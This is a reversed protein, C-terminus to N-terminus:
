NVLNGAADYVNIRYHSPAQGGLANADGSSAVHLASAAETEDIAIEGTTSNYDICLGGTLCDKTRQETWYKNISGESLNDTTWSNITGVSSELSTIRSGNSSILGTLTGDVSQFEAVIEALSNLATADTNSLISDIQSQLSADASVRASEEASIDSSLASEAATARAVEAALSDTLDSDGATRDAVEQSLLAQLSSKSTQETTSLATIQAQLDADASDRDSESAAIAAARANQEATIAAARATSEATIADANVQVAAVRAATEASIANANSTTALETADMEGELTSVRATLASADGGLNSILTQIDSDADEFAAVVEVLQNLTEPSGNTIATVAADVADINAQLTNDASTRALEEADIASQLVADAAVRANEEATIASQLGQDSLIRASQESDLLSQLVGEAATARAVEVDIASQLTADGASRLAAEAAIDSDLDDKMSQDAASRSAIESTIQSQLGSEVGTARTEEADIASQLVGEAALARTEEATIAAANATHSGANSSILTQLDSDANEFAAVVEVITDLSESSGNLIADVRGSVTDINSQLTTDATTRATAEDVVAQANVAEAATARAVEADIASQLDSDADARASAEAAEAALARTEEASIDSALGAEASTARSIENALNTTLVGEATTARSEENAIATSLSANLDSDANDVYSKNAALGASTPTDVIVQSGGFHVLGNQWDITSGPQETKLTGEVEIMTSAIRGQIYDTFEYDTGNWKLFENSDAASVNLHQDIQANTASSFGGGTITASGFNVTSGEFSVTGTQVTLSESEITDIFARNAYVDNVGKINNQGMEIGVSMAINSDSDVDIGATRANTAAIASANSAVMTTVDSDADQFASVLETLSDLASPDTNEKIFDIQTQLDSDAAVRASTEAAEAATARAVEAALDATLVADAAARLASEDSDANARATAETAIATANQSITSANATILNQIDSDAGEFASVVEVVTDLSEVSGNLIADIRANTADINSQLSSDETTRTTAETAVSADVYSKTAADQAATPDAMGTIKNGSMDVEATMEINSSGSSTSVGAVQSQLNSIATANASVDSTLVAEAGQARLSEDAIDQALSAEVTTARTTEASIATANVGEAATARSTEAAIDSALGTEASTARAVEAALDSTLVGEASLARSLETSLGASLDSDANRRATAEDTIAQQRAAVEANIANTNATVSASNSTILSQIDSDANEFAAVVEVITDLSEGAGQLIADVRDSVAQTTADVYGKTTVDGSDVPTPYNIIRNGMLDLNSLVQLNDVDANFGITGTGDGFYLGGNFTALGDVTISGDTFNAGLHNALQTEAATARATEVAIDAALGAEVTEARSQETVVAAANAAEATQARLEEADINAQLTNEALTARTVEAAVSVELGSKDAVQTASLVDVQSQLNADGAIRASSETNINSQLVAEANTARTYEASEASVARTVEADLESHVENIASVVTTATTALSSVAGVDSDLNSIDTDNSDIQSQLDSDGAARSVAEADINSQLTTDAAERTETELTLSANLGGVGTANSTMLALLDSDSGQLTAVIEQFTDLTEPSTGVIHDIQSQLNTEAATARTEETSVQTDVYLKTTVDKDVTPETINLVQHGNMDLDSMITIANSLPDHGIAGGSTGVSIGDSFTALGEVIIDGDSDAQLANSLIDVRQTLISDETTSRSIEANLQSTLNTTISTLSDIEVQQAADGDARATTEAAIAAANDAIGIGYGEQAISINNAYNYANINVDNALQELQNTRHMLYNMGTSIGSNPLVHESIEVAGSAMTLDLEYLGFISESNLTDQDVLDTPTIKIPVGTLLNTQYIYVAGSNTGQDDDYPAAVALKGGNVAIKYGFQDNAAGDPANLTFVPTPTYSGNQTANDYLGELDYVLVQGADTGYANDDYPVGVYLYNEDVALSWGFRQYGEYGPAKIFRVTDNIQYTGSRPFIAVLGNDTGRNPNTQTSDYWDPDYDDYPMGVFLHTSNMAIGHEGFGRGISEVQASGGYSNSYYYNLADYHTASVNSGTNLLNTLDYTSILGIYGSHDRNTHYNPSGSYRQAYAYSMVAYNRSGVFLVNDIVELRYGFYTSDDNSSHSSWGEFEMQDNTPELVTPSLTLNNINFLYVSGSNLESQGGTYDDYPCGVIIFDDTGVVDHGFFMSDETTTNPTLKVPPITLDALEYVFVAGQNIVVADEYPAGVVLYERAVCVSRGFLSNIDGDPHMLKVPQESPNNADFVYVSGGNANGSVIMYQDQYVTRSIETMVNPLNTLGSGGGIENQLSLIETSNNSILTQIDNDANQFASVVEQITDLTEPSTGVINDIQAQLDADGSIRAATENAIDVINTNITATNADVDTRLGSEVGTARVVEADLENHVENIAGITSDATTLLGEAVPPALEAPVSEINSSVSDILKVNPPNDLNAVEFVSISQSNSGVFLYGSMLGISIGFKDENNPAVVHSDAGDAQKWDTFDTTNVTSIDNWISVGNYSGIYLKNGDLIVPDISSTSSHLPSFNAESTTYYFNQSLDYTYETQAGGKWTFQFYAGGTNEHHTMLIPYFEGEVMPIVVDRMGTAEYIAAASLDRGENLAQEGVWLVGTYDVNVRFTFDATEPAKFYGVFQYTYYSGMDGLNIQNSFVNAASLPMPFGSTWEAGQTYIQQGWLGGQTLTSGLGGTGFVKPSESLNLRDWIVARDSLTSAIWRDNITLSGGILGAYKDPGNLTAVLSTSSPNTIDYIYLSGVRTGSEQKPSSVVLTTGRIAMSQGYGMGASGVSPELTSLLAYSSADYLKVTGYSGDSVSSIAIVDETMVVSSGFDGSTVGSNVITPAAFLDSADYVFFEGNSAAVVVKTSSVAVDVGYGMDADVTEGSERNPTLEIPALNLNNGNYALVTNAEPKKVFVFPVKADLDVETAAAIAEVSSELASIATANVANNIANTSILNTLDSDANEFASVIEVMTDLHDPSAGLIANIQSQLDSDGAIRSATETDINTQLTTDASERSATEGTTYQEFYAVHAANASDYISAQEANAAAYIASQDLNAQAYIAVQEAKDSDFRQDQAALKFDINAEIAQVDEVFSTSGTLAGVATLLEEKKANLYNVASTLSDNPNFSETYSETISARPSAVSRASNGGDDTEEVKVPIASLDNIDHIMTIGTRNYSHLNTLRSNTILLDGHVSFEYPYRSDAERESYGWTSLTWKVVEASNSGNSPLASDGQLAVDKPIIYLGGNNAWDSYGLQGLFLYEDHVAIHEHSNFFYVFYNEPHINSYHRVLNNDTIIVPPKSLDTADFIAMKGIANSWRIDGMRSIVAIMTDSARVGVTGFDTGNIVTDSLTTVFSLDSKNYVIVKRQAALTVFIHTSNWDAYAGYDVDVDTVDPGAIGLSSPLDDVMSEVFIANGAVLSPIDYVRVGGFDDDSHNQYKTVMLKTGGDYELNRDFGGCDVVAIPTSAVNITALDYVLFSHTGSENAKNVLFIAYDRTAIMEVSTSDTTYEDPFEIRTGVGVNQGTSSWNASTYVYSENDGRRVVYYQDPIVRDYTISTTEQPLAVYGTGMRGRIEEQLENTTAFASNVESTFLTYDSDHDAIFQTQSANVSAEFATRDANVQDIDAQVADRHAQREANVSAEFATRDADVAVIAAANTAINATNTAVDAAISAIDADNALIAALNADLDARLEQRKSELYNISNGLGSAPIITDTITQTVTAAPTIAIRAGFIGSANSNTPELLNIPDQDMNTLDYVYVGSESGSRVLLRNSEEHIYQAFNIVGEDPSEVVLPPLILNTSDYIFMIGNSNPTTSVGSNDLAGVILRTDTIAISHGFQLGPSGYESPAYLKTHPENLNDPNFLYVSGHNNGQTDDNPAGVAILTSSAEFAGNVEGGAWAITDSNLDSSTLQHANSLHGDVENIDWVYLTDTGSTRLAYLKDGFVRMKYTNLGEITYTALTGTSGSESLPQRWIQDTGSTEHAYIYDESVAFASVNQGGNEAPRYQKSSSSIGLVLDSFDYRYVIHGNSSWRVFVAESNADMIVVSQGSNYITAVPIRPNSRASDYVYVNRDDSVAYFQRGAYEVDYTITEGIDPTILPVNEAGITTQLAALTGTNTDILNQLSNDASEYASVIEQLTDLTEPSTGIIADLQAQLAADGTVIASANAQEALQARVVEADLNSQVANVEAITAGSATRAANDAVIDDIQNQLIGDAGIRSTTEDSLNSSQTNISTQLSADGAQRASIEADIQAQLANDASIRATTEISAQAIRQTKEELIDAALEDDGAIRSTAESTDAAIRADVEQQLAADAGATDSLETHLENIAGVLTTATTDLSETTTVSQPEFFYLGSDNDFTYDGAAFDKTYVKLNTFQSADGNVAIYDVDEEVLTWGDLPVARWSEGRIMYVTCSPLTWTSGNTSNLDQTALLGDLYTPLNRYTYNPNGNNTISMGNYAEILTNNQTGTITFDAATPTTTVSAGLLSSNATILSQLDGDASEFAAVIEQLTDLTEPSTGVIADIQSQISSLDVGELDSFNALKVWQGAHAFYAAGEAHVHAFMGHNASADPLDALTSFLPHQAGGAEVQDIKTQLSAEAALARTTEASIASANAQEAATARAAEADVAAQVTADGAVRATAEASIADARATAEATDAAERAATETALSATLDSDGAIRSAEEADISSQLADDANERATAEAQVAFARDSVEQTLSQNVATITSSNGTILSTLDSDAGEFAAVVEQITDLTEPSTGVIADLQSQISSLDSGTVTNIQSQLDSVAAARTQAESLDAAIRAAKETDINTQLTADGAIRAASEDSDADARATAEAAIDAALQTEASTARAIEADIAAGRATAEAAVADAIDQSVADRARVVTFFLKDSGEAIVDTSTVAIPTATVGDYVEWRDDLENWRLQVAPEDGRMIRIGANLVPAGTSVNSNLDIINDAVKLTQSDLTTTTGEVTLNGEITVNNEFVKDGSITGEANLGDVYEKTAADSPDVPAGVNTVQHTGMDVSGGFKTPAGGVTSITEGVSMVLDSKLQVSEDGANLDINGGGTAGFSLNQGADAYMTITGSNDELIKTGNIYLSGPGIYLDKWVRDPSGLAYQNDASPILNGTWGDSDNYTFQSAQLSAVDAQRAVAEATIAAANLDDATTSRAIEANLSNQLATDGSIRRATEVALDDAVSTIQASNATLQSSNAALLSQIDSDAGEFASVIEVLTDLTEPSAGLISDIQSQLSDVAAQTDSNVGLSDIQSQLSAIDSIRTATESAIAVTNSNVDIFIQSDSDIISSGSGTLAGADVLSSVADAIAGAVITGDARIIVVDNVTLEGKVDVGNQIRFKKNTSM